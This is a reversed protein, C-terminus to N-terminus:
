GSAPRCGRGGLRRRTPVEREDVRCCFGMETGLVCRLARVAALHQVLAHRGAVTARLSRSLNSVPPAGGAVLMREMGLAQAHKLGRWQAVLRYGRRPVMRTCRPVTRLCAMAATM